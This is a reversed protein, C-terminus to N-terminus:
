QLLNDNTAKIEGEIGRRIKIIILKIKHQILFANSFQFEEKSNSVV